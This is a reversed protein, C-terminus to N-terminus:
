GAVPNLNAEAAIDEYWEPTGLLLAANLETYEIWYGEKNHVAPIDVTFENALAALINEVDTATYPVSM